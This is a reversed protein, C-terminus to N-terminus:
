LTYYIDLNYLSLERWRHNFFRKGTFEEVGVWYEKFGYDKRELNRLIKTLESRTLDGRKQHYVKESM